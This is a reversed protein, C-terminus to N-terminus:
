MGLESSSPKDTLLLPPQEKEEKVGSIRKEKSQDFFRLARTDNPIIQITAGGTLEFPMDVNVEEFEILGQQLKTTEIAEIEKIIRSLSNEFANMDIKIPNERKASQGSEPDTVELPTPKNSENSKNSEDSQPKSFVKGM